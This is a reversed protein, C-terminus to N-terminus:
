QRIISMRDHPQKESKRKSWMYEAVDYVHVVRKSRQTDVYFSCWPLTNNSAKKKASKEDLNLFRKATEEVSPLATGFETELSRSLSKVFESKTM